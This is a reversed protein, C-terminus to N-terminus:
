VKVSLPINQVVATVTRSNAM